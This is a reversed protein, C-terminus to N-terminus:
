DSSPLAGLTLGLAPSLQLLADQEPCYIFQNGESSICLTFEYCLGAYTTSQFVVSVTSEIYESDNPTFTVAGDMRNMHLDFLWQFDKAMGLYKTGIRCAGFDDITLSSRDLLKSDPAILLLTEIAVQEEGDGYREIYILDNVHVNKAYYSRIGSSSVAKGYDVFYALDVCWNFYSEEDTNENWEFKVYDRGDITYVGENSEESVSIHEEGYALGESYGSVTPLNKAWLTYADSLSRSEPATLPIVFTQEAANAEADEYQLDFDIPLTLRVCQRKEHNYIYQEGEDVCCVLLWYRLGEYRSSEFVVTEYTTAQPLEDADVYVTNESDQTHLTMLWEFDSAQAVYREGLLCLGFEGIVYKESDFVNSDSPLYLMKENEKEFILVERSENAYVTWGDDTVGLLRFFAQDVTWGFLGASAEFEDEAGNLRKYEVGNLYYLSQWGDSTVTRKSTMDLLEPESETEDSSYDGHFTGWTPSWLRYGANSYGDFPVQITLVKPTVPAASSVASDLVLSDGSEASQPQCGFTMCLACCLLIPMVTRLKM